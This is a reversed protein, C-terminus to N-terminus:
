KEHIGYLCKIIQRGSNTRSNYDTFKEGQNNSVKEDREAHSIEPNLM